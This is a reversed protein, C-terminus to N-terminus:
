IKQFYEYYPKDADFIVGGHQTKVVKFKNWVGYIMRLINKYGLPIDISLFEFPVTVVKEYDKKYRMGEKNNISYTLFAMKDAEINKYIKAYEEFLYYYKNVSDYIKDQNTLAYRESEIKKDYLRCWFDKRDSSPPLNDLPFIDFFIGQNIKLKKEFEEKLIGTTMSNRLQAHGRLSGFDTYETQFFYPYTFEKSAIECLRDYDGRLMAIDMDDDWPIFGKHRVAGLLTGSDAFYRLNYKKCVEHFKAFLDLEVAWVEKRKRTVLFGCREEDNLFGDPIKITKLEVMKCVGGWFFILYQM